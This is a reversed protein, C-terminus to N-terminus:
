HCHLIYMYRAIADALHKRLHDDDQSSFFFSMPLLNYVLHTENVHLRMALDGSPLLSIEVERSVLQYKGVPCLSVVRETGRM